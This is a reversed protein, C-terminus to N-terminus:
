GQSSHRTEGYGQRRWTTCYKSCYQHLHWKLLFAQQSKILLYVCLQQQMQGTTLGLELSTGMDVLHSPYKRAMLYLTWLLGTYLSWFLLDLAQYSQMSAKHRLTLASLRIGKHGPTHCSTTASAGNLYATTSGDDEYITTEGAESGPMITLVLTEYQRGAVGITDGVPLPVTPIVAGAKVLVPVENLSYGRSLMTSGDKAGSLLRGSTEEIWTGPAIWLLKEAMYSTTNDAPAVIPAVIM